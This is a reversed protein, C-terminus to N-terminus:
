RDLTVVVKRWTDGAVVYFLFKVPWLYGVGAGWIEDHLFLFAEPQVVLAPGQAVAWHRHRLGQGDGLVTWKADASMRHPFRSLTVPRGSAHDHPDVAVLSLSRTQGPAQLIRM